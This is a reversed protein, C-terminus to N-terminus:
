LFVKDISLLESLAEYNIEIRWNRIKMNIKNHNIVANNQKQKNEFVM